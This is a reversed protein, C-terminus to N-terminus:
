ALEPRAGGDRAPRLESLVRRLLAPVEYGLRRAALGALSVYSVGGAAALVVLRPLLGADGLGTAASMLVLGTAATMALPIALARLVDRLRNRTARAAFLLAVPDVTAASLVVAGAVGPLGFARSAPWIAAAFVLLRVSVLMTVIQPRGIAQFLPGTSASVSRLLGGVALVRAVPVLPLWKEGLFLLTFDRVFFAIAAALPASVFMLVQLNRLYAERVRQPEERLRAFAPFMVRSIMLTIETAPLNAIAFAMTYIGLAVEGQTRGVFANDGKGILFMIMQASAVWRGFRFLERVRAPDIRLRPRFPHLAYSLLLTAVNGALTGYVLAWVDHRVLALGIAVAANAAASGVEWVFIRKFDLVRACHVMGINAAGQIVFSLGLIRLVPASSASGFFAAIGPAALWVCASLLAGRVLAFVWASDLAVRDADPAQILAAQLGTPALTDLLSVALTGIALVGFDAPALVRALVLTALLTLARSAIQLGLLWVGGRVVRARLGLRVPVASRQTDTRSSALM